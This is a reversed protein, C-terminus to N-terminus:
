RGTGRAVVALNRIFEAVGQIGLLCLAVPLVTKFPYLPGQWITPDPPLVERYYWSTWVWGISYKVLVVTLPFFIVVYFILEIIAKSRPSFREHLFDIRIHGGMRLIYAGGLMFMSGCLMYSIDYSWVTPANLVGRAIVVEYVVLLSFALILWSVAKGVREIPLDIYKLISQLKM